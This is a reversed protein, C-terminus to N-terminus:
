SILAYTTNCRHVRTHVVFLMRINHAVCQIGITSFGLYGYKLKARFVAFLPLDALDVDNLFMDAESNLDGSKLELVRPHQSQSQLCKRLCRKGVVTKWHGIGFLLCPVVTYGAIKITIEFLLCARGREFEQLCLGKERASLQSPLQQSLTVVMVQFFDRFTELFEGAALEPLRLGRMPCSEWLRRVWVAIDTWDLSYHCPCSEVWAFAMRVAEFIYNAAIMMGWFMTSNIAEDADKVKPGEDSSTDLRSHNRSGATYLALAWFRRLVVMRKLLESIGFAVSGWRKRNIRSTFTRIDKAFHVALPTCYCTEIVRDRTHSHSLLNCIESLSPVMSNVGLMSELVRDAANHLVHLIGPAEVCNNMSTFTKLFSTKLM